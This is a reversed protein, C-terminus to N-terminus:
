QFEYDMEPGAAALFHGQAYDVGAAFLHTMSAADQVFEAITQKGLEHAKDAIARVRQQHEASGALEEMFARDLKLLSADFHSLLQFSNLGSGFQELGVQVGLASVQSLFTQAAGLNTFVKSESLQLVLLNGEAGHKTLQERILVVLSDDQLSAETIRVMLTTRRGLKLREGIVAIARGVVWRDIEWLLGHEEAIPLFTLPQVLDGHEGRMRLYADYKEEPEGHLSIVPQYHMLFQDNDIADRIRAVWAEIREQEARDVAGPDFLEIRNGGVGITSQVGQSAKGLVATVSAIRQGIQVGGISTTANLSRSGAELLNEAFAKRVAEALELTGRHETNRRLVAFQHEGFRAAIDDPGLASRLRAACAGILQDAADLGIDQLLQTYHDPEVLLLSHSSANQAADAIVDELARLFTARNLLGTAQDRQRLEEVERALEPDFEPEHRRIVVQQCSEGEYTAATFEMVAPFDTGDLTRATLEHRPPPAEGKSLQKLLHKFGEVDHPAVMDLLSMGEIEDFSEYGFIELYASNARIHMGEHVYAIPDRSSEILSDCRRETERVQAALKRQSRRAELDAWEARVVSQVHEIRGRLAIARVGMQAAELVSADDITDQVVLVPLDKGSADVLRMVTALPVSRADRAAVVMDPPQSGLLEDFQAENEPRSPRAAIGGNRLGSVIAEAAEVSDDVILLRLAADKGFQM